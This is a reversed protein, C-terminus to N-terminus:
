AYIKGWDPVVVFKKRVQRLAWAKRESESGSTLVVDQLFDVESGWKVELSTQKTNEMDGGGGGDGSEGAGWELTVKGSQHVNLRGALGAPLASTNAATLLRPKDTETTTTQTRTEVGGDEKKIKPEAPAQSAVPANSDASPELKVDPHHTSPNILMPTLPPFQFLYLRGEQASKLAEKDDEDGLPPHHELTRKSLENRMKRLEVTYREREAREEMTEFQPKTDKTSSKRRRKTPSHPLSATKDDAVSTIEKFTVATEEDEGDLDMIDGDAEAKAKGKERRKRRAKTYAEVHDDGREQLDRAARVPRLGLNPKPIKNVRRRHYLVVDDEEEEDDGGSSISIRDIDEIDVADGEGNDGEDDSIYSIDDKKTIAKAQRGPAKRTTTATKGRGEFGARAKESPEGGVGVIEDREARQVLEETGSVTHTPKSRSSAVGGTSSFVSATEQNRLRQDRHVPGARRGSDHQAQSPQSQIQNAQRLAEAQIFVAREEATKRHVNAKVKFRRQSPPPQPDAM